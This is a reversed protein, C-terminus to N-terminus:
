ENRPDINLVKSIAAAADIDNGVALKGKAILMFAPLFGPVQRTITELLKLGKGVPQTPSSNENGMAMEKMSVHSLYLEALSYLFDPNLKSYMSFGSSLSKSYTIQMKLANDVFKLANM